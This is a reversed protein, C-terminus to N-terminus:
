FKTGCYPCLAFDKEVEKGCKPCLTPQFNKGCYPCLKFGPKVPKGCSPCKSQEKKVTESTIEPQAAAQQQSSIVGLNVNQTKATKLADKYARAEYKKRLIEPDKDAIELEKLKTVDLGLNALQQIKDMDLAQDGKKKGLEIEHLKLSEIGKKIEEPISIGAIDFRKYDIGMAQFMESLKGRLVAILADRELYIESTSLKALESRIVGQLNALIHARLKSKSYTTKSGMVQAWFMKPNDVQLEVTGHCGVTVNDRSMTEPLGWKLKFPMLSVYILHTKTTPSLKSATHSGSGFEQYIKGDRIFLAREYEGVLFHPIKGISVRKALEDDEWEVEEPRIPM